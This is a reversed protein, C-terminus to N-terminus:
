KKYMRAIQQQYKEEVARRRVKLTPTLLNNEGSFPEDLLIFKWINLKKYMHAPKELNEQGNTFFMAALNKYRM